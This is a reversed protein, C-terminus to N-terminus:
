AMKMKRFPAWMMPPRFAGSRDDVPVVEYSDCGWVYNRRLTLDFQALLPEVREMRYRMTRLSLPRDAAGLLRRLDNICFPGPRELFLRLLVRQSGQLGWESWESLRDHTEATEWQHRQPPVSLWRRDAELRAGLERLPLDRSLVNTAGAEFLRTASVDAPVLVTVSAALRLASVRRQIDQATAPARVDLIALTNPFDLLMELAALSGWEFVPLRSLLTKTLDRQGTSAGLTIVVAAPATARASVQPSGM